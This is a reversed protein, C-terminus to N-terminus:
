EIGGWTDSGPIPVEILNIQIQRSPVPGTGEVVQVQSVRVRYNRDRIILWSFGGEYTLRALWSVMENPGIGSWQESEYAVTLQWARGPLALKIFKLIFSDIIPSRADDDTELNFRLEISRSTEGRPFGKSDENFTLVSRGYASVYGLSKWESPNEDTRYTVEVSGNLPQGDRPDTLYIELHSWTKDFGRMGADFWGTEYYGTSAFKEVNDLVKQRPGHFSRPIAISHITPKGLFASTSTDGQVEVAGEGWWVRYGGVSQTLQLGTPYRGAGTGPQYPLEGEYLVHWGGENWAAVAYPFSSGDESEGGLQVLAVLFNQAGILSTITRSPRLTNIDPSYPGTRFEWSALVRDAPISDDRDIGIDTRVGDRTYRAVSFGSSIYLADDRWSALGLGNNHHEPWRLSSQHVRDGEQDYAWLGSDTTIYIAPEGAQNYFVEINRCRSSPGMSYIKPDWTLSGYLSVRMTRDLTIAYKKGDLQAVAVAKVTADYASLTDPSTPHIHTAVVQVGDKGLPILIYAASSGICARNQAYGPLNAIKTYTMNTYSYWDGEVKWLEKGMAVYLVDDIEILPMAIPGRADSNTSLITPGFTLEDHKPPLALQESSMTWACAWRGRQDTAGEQHQDILLGGTWNSQVWTSQLQDSDKGYDGFTLKSEFRSTFSEIVSAAPMPIEDLRITDAEAFYISEGQNIVSADVM